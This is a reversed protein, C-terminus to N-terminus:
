CQNGYLRTAPNKPIWGRSLGAQYSWDDANEMKWTWMIWGIGYKEYTTTQVEFYKRLQTEYTSSFGAGSGTLNTCSGLKTSGALTGEYYSGAGITTPNAVPTYAM